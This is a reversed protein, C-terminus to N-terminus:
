KPVVCVVLDFKTKHVSIIEFYELLQQEWWEATEIILHANKGNKLIRSAPVTSIVFYGAKLTVRQLDSLVNNLLDPEVHELVDVCTVLNHPAPKQSIEPIGPDYDTCTFEGPYESELMGSLRNASGAGYDLIDTYQQKKIFEVIQVFRSKAAKGWKNPTNHEHQLIEFYEESCLLSTNPMTAAAPLSQSTQINDAVHHKLVTAQHVLHELVSGMVSEHKHDISELRHLLQDYKKSLSDLQAQITQIEDSSPTNLSATEM